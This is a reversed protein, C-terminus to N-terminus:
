AILIDEIKDDILSGNVMTSVFLVACLFESVFEHSM